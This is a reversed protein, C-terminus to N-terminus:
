ESGTYNACYNVNNQENSYHLQHIRQPLIHLEDPLPQKVMDIKKTRPHTSLETLVTWNRNVYQDVTQLNHMRHLRYQKVTQRM